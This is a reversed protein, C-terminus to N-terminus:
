RYAGQRCDYNKSGGGVYLLCAGTESVTSGGRQAVAVVRYNYAADSESDLGDVHSTADADLEVLTEWPEFVVGASNPFPGQRQVWLESVDTTDSLSWEFRVAAEDDGARSLAVFAPTAVRKRNANVAGTMQRHGNAKRAEARCVYSQGPDLDSFVARKDVRGLEITEWTSRASQVRCKAVQGVYNPNRGPIWELRLEEGHWFAGLGAPKRKSMPGHPFLSKNPSSVTEGGVSMEVQFGYATGAVGSRVPTFKYERVDDSVPHSASTLRSYGDDTWYHVVQDQPAVGDPATWRVIFADGTDRVRITPAADSAAQTPTAVAFAASAAIVAAVALLAAVGAITTRTRTRNM